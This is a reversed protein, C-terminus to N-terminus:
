RKMWISITLRLESYRLDGQGKRVKKQCKLNTVKDQMKKLQSGKIGRVLRRKTEITKPMTNREM